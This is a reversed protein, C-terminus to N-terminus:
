AAGPAGKRGVEGAAAPGLFEGPEGQPEHVGTGQEWLLTPLLALCERRAQSAACFQSPLLWGPRWDQGPSSAPLSSGHGGGLMAEELSAARESGGGDFELDQAEQIRVGLPHSRCRSPCSTLLPVLSLCPPDFHSCTGLAPGLSPSPWHSSSPLVKPRSLLLHPLAWQLHPITPHRGPDRQEGGQWTVKWWDENSDDVLMIRDGPRPPCLQPQLHAPPVQGKWMKVIQPGWIGLMGGGQLQPLMRSARLPGQSWLSLLCQLASGPGPTPSLVDAGIGKPSQATWSREPSMCAPLLNRFIGRVSTNWPRPTPGQAPAPHSGPPAPGCLPSVASGPRQERPASVQLARRLLVHTGRGEASPTQPATSFSWTLSPFLVSEENWGSNM